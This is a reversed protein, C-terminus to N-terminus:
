KHIRHYYCYTDYTGEEITEFTAISRNEDFCGEGPSVRRRIDFVDNFIVCNCTGRNRYKSLESLPDRSAPWGFTHNVSVAIQTPRVCEDRRMKGLSEDGTQTDPTAGKSTPRLRSDRPAKLKCLRRRDTASRRRRRQSQKKRTGVRRTGRRDRLWTVTAWKSVWEVMSSGYSGIAVERRCSVMRFSVSFAVELNVGTTRQITRLFKKSNPNTVHFSTVYRVIIQRASFAPTINANVPFISLVLDSDRTYPPSVRFHYSKARTIVDIRSTIIHSM